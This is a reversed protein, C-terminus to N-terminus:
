GSYLILFDTPSLVGETEMAIFISSARSQVELRLANLLFHDLICLFSLYKNTADYGRTIHAKTRNYALVVKHEAFPRRVRSEFSASMTKTDTSM